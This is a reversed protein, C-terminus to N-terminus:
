WYEQIGPMPRWGDNELLRVLFKSLTAAYSQPSLASYTGWPEEGREWHGMFAAIYEPPCREELLNSRLYHRSANPPMEYKLNKRIEKWIDTPTVVKRKAQETMFFFLPLKDSPIRSELIYRLSNFLDIDLYELKPMLYDLHTLYETYQQVCVPPLWVIRANYYDVGDKDSIAAFGTTRDIQSPPLLPSNVARFGTSFAFLIATYRMINNHLRLLKDASRPMKQIVKMREQLNTVMKKVSTQKPRYATGSMGTCTAPPIPNEAEGLFVDVAELSEQQIFTMVETCCEQFMKQLKSVPYATYHLPPMGLFDKRGTLLMATTLDGGKQHALSNHLYIELRKITLRTHHRKNIGSIFEALAKDYKGAQPSFLNNEYHSKRVSVIYDDIIKELGTGSTVQFFENRDEANLYFAEGLKMDFPLKPPYAIWYGTKSGNYLYGPPAIEPNIADCLYFKELDTLPVSRLFITVAVAALELNSIGSWQNGNCTQETTLQYVASIFCSLEFYTLMEWRHPLRQNHMTISSIYSRKEKKHQAASKDDMPTNKNASDIILFDIAGSPEDCELKSVAASVPQIVRVSDVKGILDQDVAYNVSHRITRFARPKGTRSYTKARKQSFAYDLLKYIIELLDGTRKICEIYEGAGEPLTAPLDNYTDHRPPLLIKRALRCSKQLADEYEKERHTNLRKRHRLITAAVVIYAEILLHRETINHQLSSIGLCVYVSHNSYLKQFPRAEKFYSINAQPHYKEIDERKEKIAQAAKLCLEFDEESLFEEPSELDYIAKILNSIVLFQENVQIIGKCNPPCNILSFYLELNDTATGTISSIFEILTSDQEEM